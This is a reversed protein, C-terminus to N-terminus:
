INSSRNEHRDTAPFPPPGKRPIPIPEVDKVRFSALDYSSDDGIFYSVHVEDDDLTWCGWYTITDKRGTPGLLKTVYAIRDAGCAENEETTLVVKIGRGDDAVMAPDATATLSFSLLGLILWLKM